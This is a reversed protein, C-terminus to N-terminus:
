LNLTILDVARKEAICRTWRACCSFVFWLKLLNFTPKYNHTAFFTIAQKGIIQRDLSFICRKKRYFLYHSATSHLSQVCSNTRARRFFFFYSFLIFVPKCFCSLGQTPRIKRKARGKLVSISVRPITVKLNSSSCQSVM